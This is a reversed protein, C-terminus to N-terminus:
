RGIQFPVHVRVPAGPPPPGDQPQITIAGDEAMRLAAVGFMLGAPTESVTSCDALRAPPQFRCQIVADGAIGERGATSPYYPGARGFARYQNYTRTFAAEFMPPGQPSALACPGAGATAAAAIFALTALRRQNM